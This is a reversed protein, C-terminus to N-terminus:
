HPNFVILSLSIPLYTFLDIVQARIVNKVDRTAPHDKYELFLTLVGFLFVYVNICATLPSFGMWDAGVMNLLGSILSTAMMVGGAFFAWLHWKGTSETVFQTFDIQEKNAMETVQNVGYDIMQKQTNEVLTNPLTYMTRGFDELPSIVSGYFQNNVPQGGAAALLADKETQEKKLAEKATNENLWKSYEASSYEQPRHYVRRRVYHLANMDKAYNEEDNVFDIAYSWGPGDRPNGRVSNVLWQSDAVWRWGPTILGENAEEMTNFHKTGDKDSYNSRDTPLLGEKNFGVGVQYRQNEWVEVQRTKLGGKGSQSTEKGRGKGSLSDTETADSSGFLGLM